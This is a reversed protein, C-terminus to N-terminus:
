DRAIGPIEITAEMICAHAIRFGRDRPQAIGFRAHRAVIQDALVALYQAHDGLLIAGPM